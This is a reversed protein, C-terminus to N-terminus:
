IAVSGVHGRFNTWVHFLSDTVANPVSGYPLRGCCACSGSVTTKVGDTHAGLVGDCCM